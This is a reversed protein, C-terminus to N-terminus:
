AQAAPLWAKVGHQVAGRLDILKRHFFHSTDPMRVLEPQRELTELWEYVAQPDVIEDADGQILLWRQPPEVGAFDWRGAPPAISILAQPQLAACARLSVYAGFSFGALWLADHPRQARVWAAVAALDQQEGEGHDFSGASAGVSRFNFRVVSIGQERLARAVMTVVKNHMTGGETSLPHCVIAVVPLRPVGADPLDVAAELPGAPGDLTLAASEHPFVPADM